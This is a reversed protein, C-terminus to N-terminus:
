SSVLEPNVELSPDIELTPRVPPYKGRAISRVIEALCSFNIVVYSHKGINDDKEECGYAPKM